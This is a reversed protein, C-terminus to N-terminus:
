AADDYTMIVRKGLAELAAQLKEPRTDHNPDLMRRVVTERVNLRRALESQSMDVDRIAWYLALKAVIWLPVPVPKQGRKLRSPRPVNVNDRMAFAISSGLCDIAEEMAENADAGDTHAAPFDPFGVLSRGSEDHTFVAPYAFTFM